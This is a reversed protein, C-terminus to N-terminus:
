APLYTLPSAAGAYAPCTTAAIMAREVQFRKGPKVKQRIYSNFAQSLEDASVAASAQLLQLSLLRRAMAAFWRYATTKMSM